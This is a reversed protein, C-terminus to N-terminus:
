LGDNNINMKFISNSSSSLWMDNVLVRLYSKTIGKYKIDVCLKTAYNSASSNSIDVLYYGTQADKFSSGAVHSNDSQLYYVDTTLIFNTALLNHQRQVNKFLWASSVTVLSAIVAVVAIILLISRYRVAKQLSFRM